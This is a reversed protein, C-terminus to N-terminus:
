CVYLASCRRGTMDIARSKTAFNEVHPWWPWADCDASNTSSNGSSATQSHTPWPWSVTVTPTGSALAKRMTIPSAVSGMTVVQDLHTKMMNQTADIPCNQPNANRLFGAVQNGNASHL